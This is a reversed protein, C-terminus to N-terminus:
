NNIESYNLLNCLLCYNVLLLNNFFLENSFTLYSNPCSIVFTYIPMDMHVDLQIKLIIYANFFFRM